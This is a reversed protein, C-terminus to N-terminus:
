INHIGYGFCDLPCRRLTEYMIRDYEDATFPFINGAPFSGCIPFTGGFSGGPFSGILYAFSGFVWSGFFSGARWSTGSFSGYGGLRWEWEWEWMRFGGFSGLSYSGARYSGGVFSGASVMLVGSGYNVGSGSSWSGFSRCGCAVSRDGVFVEKRVAPAKGFIEALKRDLEPDHPSLQEIEAAQKEGGHERLWEALKGGLFYGRLSALDFHETIESAKRIMCRGFWLSCNM